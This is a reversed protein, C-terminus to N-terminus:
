QLLRDGPPVARAGVEGGDPLCPRRGFVRDGPCVRRRPPRAEVDVVVERRADDPEGVPLAVGHQPVQEGVDLPGVELDAEPPLRAGNREPVVPARLVIGYGVVRPLAPHHVADGDGALTGASPPRRSWDPPWSATRCRSATSASSTTSRSAACRTAP